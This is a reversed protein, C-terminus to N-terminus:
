PGAKITKMKMEMAVIMMDVKRTMGEVVNAACDTVTWRVM